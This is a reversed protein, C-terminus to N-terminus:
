GGRQKVPVDSKGSRRKKLGLRLNQLMPTVSILIVQAFIHSRLIKTEFTQMVYCPKLLDFVDSQSGYTQARGCFRELSRRSWIKFQRTIKMAVASKDGNKRFRKALSNKLRAIRM